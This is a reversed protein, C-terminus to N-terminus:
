IWACGHMQRPLRPKKSNPVEIFMKDVVCWLFAWCPFIESNKRRSVRLIAKWILCKVWLHVCDPYKKRFDPCKKEIKMLKSCTVAVGSVALGDLHVKTHSWYFMIYICKSYMQIFAKQGNESRTSSRSLAFLKSWLKKKVDSQLRELLIPTFNTLSWWLLKQPMAFNGPFNGALVKNNLTLLLFVLFFYSIHEFNVM